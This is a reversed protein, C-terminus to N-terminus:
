TSSLHMRRPEEHVGSHRHFSEPGSTSRDSEAPSENKCRAQTAAQTQRLHSSAEPFAQAPSSAGGAM